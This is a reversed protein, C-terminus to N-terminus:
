FGFQSRVAFTSYDQDLLGGSANMRVVKVQQGQFVFRVSPNLTWGLGLSTIDQQGGRVRDGVVASGINYDLDLNAYRAVLEFAGWHGAKPDFNNKPVVGDFAGTTANYKRAEGTLTWGGEVYWGAFSPDTVGAAPNKRTIDFNFAEAQIFGQGAQAALEIGTSTLNEANIAGTDVLRTGDVRLEPRERLQVAFPTASAAGADNPNIIAQYNVGAHVLWDKGKLPTGAVRAVVGLQEDFSAPVFSSAQTNLTSLTNGTIALSWLYRDSSNFAAVGMRTDGAAIGRAMEAVAARELFPTNGAGTADAMGASPGFEGIRLKAHKFGNYQVWAEHFRGVDEGGSGGFDMWIAYEFDKYAKGVMGIRARRFNTGSNLDRATVSSPLNDDQMYSAADMQFLSRFTLTFDGTASSLSATANKFNTAGTPAVTAALQKPTAAPAPQAPAAAVVVPAAADKDQLAKVQAALSKVEAMLADIQAQKAASDDDYRAKQLEILRQAESAIQQKLAAQSQVAPRKRKAAVDDGGAIAPAAAGLALTVALLSVSTKVFAPLARRSVISM